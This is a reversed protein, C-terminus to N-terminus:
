IGYYSSKELVSLFINKKNTVVASIAQTHIASQILLKPFLLLFDMLVGVSNKFNIHYFYVEVPEEMRIKM